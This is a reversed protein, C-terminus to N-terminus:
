LIMDMTSIDFIYRGKKMHYYFNASAIFHNSTLRVCAYVSSGKKVIQLRDYISLGEDSNVSKYYSNCVDDYKILDLSKLIENDFYNELENIHVTVNKCMEDYDGKNAQSTKLPYEGEGKWGRMYMGCKFLKDFFEDFTDNYERLFRLLKEDKEECLKRIQLLENLLEKCEDNMIRTRCIRILREINVDSLTNNSDPENFSKIHRFNNILEEISLAIFKMDSMIGFSIIAKNSSILNEINDNYIYTQVVTGPIYGEFFTKTFEIEDFLIQTKTIEDDVDDIYFLLSKKLKKFTEASYFDRLKPKWFKAMNYFDRNLKFNNLFNKDIPRYDKGKKCLERYEELLFSSSSIDTSFHYASMYIAEEDSLLIKHMMNKMYIDKREIKKTEYKEMESLKCLLKSLDYNSMGFMLNGINLILDTKNSNHYKIYYFLNKEDDEYDVEIGMEICLKYLISVDYILYKDELNSYSLPSKLFELFANFSHCLERTDWVKPEPSIFLAIKNLNKENGDYKNDILLLTDYEYTKIYNLYKKKNEDIKKPNDTHFSLLFRIVCRPINEDFGLLKYRNLEM